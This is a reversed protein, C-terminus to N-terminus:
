LRGSHFQCHTWNDEMEERMLEYHANFFEREEDTIKDGLQAKHDINWMRKINQETMILFTAQCVTATIRTNTTISVYQMKIDNTCSSLQSLNFGTSSSGGGNPTIRLLM